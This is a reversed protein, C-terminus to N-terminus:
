IVNYFILFCYEVKASTEMKKVYNAPFIGTQNDKSGTWWDGDTQIVSIVDGQNFTLDGAVNSTYSYLAVCLEVFCWLGDIL